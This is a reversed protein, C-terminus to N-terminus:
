IMKSLILNVEYKNKVIYDRMFDSLTINSSTGLLKNFMVFKEYIEKDVYISQQKENKM